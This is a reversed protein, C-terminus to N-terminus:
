TQCTCVCCCTSRDPSPLWNAEKDNGQAENFLQNIPATYAGSNKDMTYAYMIAYSM